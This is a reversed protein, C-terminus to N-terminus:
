VDYRGVIRWPGINLGDNAQLPKPGLIEPLYELYKLLIRQNREGLGDWWGPAIHINESYRFFFRLLVNTLQRTPIARLSKIFERCALDNQTLWSFAIFGHEGSHFSTVCFLDPIRNFNQLDQLEAGIVDQLPQFGTCCMVPPPGDIEIVYGRQTSFDQSLLVQDFAKKYRSFDEWGKLTYASLERRIKVMQKQRVLSKGRDMEQNLDLWSLQAKKKYIEFALARYGLLFCEELSGSFRNAGEIPEFITRDHYSCFGKFTSAKNIGKLEIEVPEKSSAAIGYKMAKALRGSNQKVSFVKGKVAIQRLSSSEPVTHALVIKSSCDGLWPGPTLCVKADFAKKLGGIVEESSIPRQSGTWGHCTKYKKGSGCFCPKNRPHKGFSM